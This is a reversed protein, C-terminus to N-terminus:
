FWSWGPCVLVTLRGGGLHTIRPPNVVGRPRSKRAHLTLFIGPPPAAPPLCAVELLTVTTLIILPM